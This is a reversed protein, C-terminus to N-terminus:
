EATTGSTKVIQGWIQIENAVFADLQAGATEASLTGQDHIFRAVSERMLPGTLPSSSSPLGRVFPRATAAPPRDHAGHANPLSSDDMLVQAVSGVFRSFLLVYVWWPAGSGFQWALYPEGFSWLLWAAILACGLSFLVDGGQQAKDHVADPYYDM